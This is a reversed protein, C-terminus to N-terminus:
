DTRLNMSDVCLFPPLAQDCCLQRFWVMESMSGTTVSLCRTQSDVVSGFFSRGRDRISVNAPDVALVM